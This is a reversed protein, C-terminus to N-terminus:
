SYKPRAGVASFLRLAFLSDGFLTRTLKAALAILPAHDPYGFALHEGCAVYYLEDRFYGYGGNFAFHLALKALAFLAAWAIPSHLFNTPSRPEGNM